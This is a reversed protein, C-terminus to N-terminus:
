SQHEPHTCGKFETFFMLGDDGIEEKMGIESTYYGTVTLSKFAAFFEAGPQSASTDSRLKSLATAVALQQDPSLKTFPAGHAEITHTDLWALGELFRQRNEPLADALVGDIVENVRAKTAGATETQPIIIEALAVVTENQAPTLVNPTWAAAPVATAAHYHAAHQEAASALADVWFSATAAAAGGAALRKLADRRTVGM